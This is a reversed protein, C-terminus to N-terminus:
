KLYVFVKGGATLTTVQFGHAKVKVPFNQYNQTNAASTKTELILGGSADKIILSDAVGFDTWAINEIFAVGQIPSAMVTDIVWPTRSFDNPM